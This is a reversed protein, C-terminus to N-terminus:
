HLVWSQQQGIFNVQVCSPSMKFQLASSPSPCNYGSMALTELQSQHEGIWLEETLMLVLTLLLSSAGM